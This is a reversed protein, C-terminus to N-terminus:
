IETPREAGQGYCRQLRMVIASEPSDAYYADRKGAVTFGKKEYLQIAAFNSARVELFWTGSSRELIYGLLTQAVGSRRAEPAVALNLIEYEGAALARTVVFGVIEEAEAVSCSYNLYESPNWQSAEPSAHQISAIADLDGIAAPRITM